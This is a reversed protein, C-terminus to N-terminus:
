FPQQISANHKGSSLGVPSGDPVTDEKLCLYYGLKYLRFVRLSPHKSRLNWRELPAAVKHWLKLLWRVPKLHIGDVFTLLQSYGRLDNSFAHLTRLGEETKSIFRANTEFTHFGTPNDIHTIAIGAAKLQRGFFVDEYGYHRFREDFPHSLMVERRVLFNATHFHQYPRRQREEATHSPECAKEYHYRLNARTSYGVKYGGYVVDGEAEVYTNLYNASIITMDCDIFLLWEKQAEQALFNRIAARGVNERRDIFRCHAWQEVKRCLEVKSRDTSGDDAVIVEYDLGSIVEAQRCLEEVMLSCDGNYAPILISLASRKM